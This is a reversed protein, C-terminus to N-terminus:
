SSHSADSLHHFRMPHERCLWAANPRVVVSYGSLKWCHQKHIALIHAIPRPRRRRAIWKQSTGLCRRKVSHNYITYLTMVCRQQVTYLPDHITSIATHLCHLHGRTHKWHTQMVSYSYGMCLCSTHKRANVVCESHWTLHKQTHWNWHWEIQLM